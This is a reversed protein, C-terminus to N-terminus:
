NENKKIKIYEKIKDCVFKIDKKTINQHLGLSMGNNMVNNSNEMSCRTKSSYLKMAPHKGINGAIIPRSEINNKKLYIALEKSNLNPYTRKNLVVCFGFWSAKSKKEEEQIIIEHNNLKKLYNYYYKYNRRRISIIKKLKKLQALAFDAQVETPRLNFGVDLFIFRPDINKYKKEYYKKRDTERSWGHSRQIRLNEIFQKNKTVCIGGELSTIHHSFYLSFSSALGFTGVKISNYEAGMSECTDEVVILNYKKAISMVKGM